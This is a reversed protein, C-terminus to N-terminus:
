QEQGGLGQAKVWWKKLLTFCFHYSGDTNRCLYYDKTLYDLLTILVDRNVPFRTKILQHCEDISLPAETTAFFDLLQKAIDSHALPIDNELIESGTYYDTLRSRFHEMELENDADVIMEDITQSVLATNISNEILGLREVVRKIYFPVRDCQCIILEIIKDDTVIIGEEKLLYIVMERAELRTLPKLPVTKMDNTPESSIGQSIEALVHHLGISGTFVMRLNNNSKRLARLVDLIELANNEIIGSKLEHQHIKQLMYPIEDWLFLVKQHTNDCI